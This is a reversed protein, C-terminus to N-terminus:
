RFEIAPPLPLSTMLNPASPAIPVVVATLLM